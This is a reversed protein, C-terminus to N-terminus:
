SKDVANVDHETGNDSLKPGCAHWIVEMVEMTLVDFPKDRFCFFVHINGFIPTTKGGFWGMQEYPKGHFFLVVDM